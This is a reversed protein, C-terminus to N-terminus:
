HILSMCLYAQALNGFGITLTGASGTGWVYGEIFDTSGNMDVISSLPAIAIGAQAGTAPASCTSESDLVGNKYICAVIQTLTGGSAICGISMSVSYKGAITPTLRNNSTITIGGGVNFVTTDFPIKTFAGFAYGTLSASLGVRAATPTGVKTDVYQKTAAELPNVPNAALALTGTMTGGTKLIFYTSDAPSAAAQVWQTSNGDNYYVYLVGSSSKWWMSGVSAGTPATDSIYISVGGSASSGAAQVWQTSDGDNYYVYLVGSDSEWWLSGVPAGVPPTDSIYGVGPTGQPGQPGTAGAPGTAGTAGTPGAPGTNGIPGQAGTAGVPGQPGAPGTAGTAGTPGPPGTAGMPGQPGAPGQPGVPGAHADVYQKTATGLAVTPDAALILPGTLTGGALSLVNSWTANFRGYYTGDSPADSGGSVTHGDVYEKNAADLANTPDPLNQIILNNANKVSYSINPNVILANLSASYTFGVGDLNRVVVTGDAWPGTPTFDTWAALPNPRLPANM